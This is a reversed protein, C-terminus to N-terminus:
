AAAPFCRNRMATLGTISRRFTEARRVKVFMNEIVQGRRGTAYLLSRFFIKSKPDDDPHDYLLGVLAPQTMRLKGRRFTLWATSVSVLLALGSIIIAPM